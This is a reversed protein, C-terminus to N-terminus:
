LGGLGKLNEGSEPSAAYTARSLPWRSRNPALFDSCRMPVVEVWGPGIGPTALGGLHPALRRTNASQTRSEALANTGGAGILRHRPPRAPGASLSAAKLSPKGLMTPAPPTLQRGGGFRSRGSKRPVIGFPKSRVQNREAAERNVEAPWHLQGRLCEWPENATLREHRRVGLDAGHEVPQAERTEPRAVVARYHRQVLPKCHASGSLVAPLQSESYTASGHTNQTAHENPGPVGSRLANM